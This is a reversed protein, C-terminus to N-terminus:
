EVELLVSSMQECVRALAGAIRDDTVAFVGLEERSLLAGWLSKTGLLWRPVGAELARREVDERRGRADHACVVLKAAPADKLGELVADTGVLLSHTRGAALVLGSARAELQARVGDALVAVDSKVQSRFARSFGGRVARELCARQFHVHAGRGPLKHALDAYLADEPGMVFRALNDPADVQQCGM